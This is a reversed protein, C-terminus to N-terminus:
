EGQEEDEVPEEIGEGPRGTKKVFSAYVATEGMPLTSAAKVPIRYADDTLWFSVRRKRSKDDTRVATGDLVITNFYGAPTQVRERGIVKGQVRWIFRFHVVDICIPDGTKLPLTRVYYMASLFDHVTKSAPLTNDINRGQFKSKVNVKGKAHDFRYTSQRETELEAVDEQLGLPLLTEADADEEMHAKVKHVKSFFSNTKGRAVTHQVKKGGVDKSSEIKIVAKGVPIDKVTVIYYITEGPGFTAGSKKPRINWGCGGAAPPAKFVKKKLAKEVARGPGKEAPAPNAGTGEKPEAQAPAAGIGMVLIATVVALVAGARFEMKGKGQGGWDALKAM